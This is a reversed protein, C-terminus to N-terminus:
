HRTRRMSTIRKPANIRRRAAQVDRIKRAGRKWIRQRLKVQLARVRGRIESDPERDAVQETIERLVTLVATVARVLALVAGTVRVAKWVRDALDRFDTGETERLDAMETAEEARFSDASRDTVRLDEVRSATRAEATVTVRSDTTRDADTRLVITGQLDTM